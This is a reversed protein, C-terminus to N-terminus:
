ATRGLVQARRGSSVQLVRLEDVTAGVSLAAERTIAVAREM